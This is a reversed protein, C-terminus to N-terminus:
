SHTPNGGSNGPIIKSKHHNTDETSGWTRCPNRRSCPCLVISSELLSIVLNIILALWAMGFLIWMSVLNKYWVPYRRGPDMGIVYDGFGVTSLTIFSYYFGEEYSWGEMSSFLIPPLLFFLLLGSFLAFSGAYWRARAQNKQAGGLWLAWRQVWFLMLRGLRNLLVLNLPIGLLAFFICFLRAGMTQPSLNGYGITTITSISFFFSGALEWRGMSTTNSLFIVGSKYRQIIDRILRDLAQRDLCTYNLLSTWNDSKSGEKSDRAASSELAQFVSTGLALYALYCCLLLPTGTVSCRRGRSRARERDRPKQVARAEKAAKPVTQGRERFM